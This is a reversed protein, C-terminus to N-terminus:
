LSGKLYRSRKPRRVGNVHSRHKPAFGTLSPHALWVVRELPAELAPEQPLTNHTLWFDKIAKVMEELKSAESPKTLFGSAGLRYAEVIDAESGSATLMLVTLAMGPQQRIWRLVDLGMVYPLKLDMLVLCPFPFEERDAFRGSGQLYNIAQQGDSAVQIPNAVGVKTMAHRLLFVDNPDDDVQLVTKM